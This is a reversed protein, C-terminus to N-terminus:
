TACTQCHTTEGGVTTRAWAELELKGLSCIKIYDATWQVDDDAEGVHLCGVRHLMLYDRSPTRTTNIFYGNPHDNMWTRFGDDDDKFVIFDPEEDVSGTPGQGKRMRMEDKAWWLFGAAHETDSFGDGVLKLLLDNSWIILRGITWSTSEPRPLNLDYVWKAIEKKGAQGTYKNIPLFRAPEVMCLVKTLLAERFGIMGFGHLGEILDTLRDELFTDEPGYLLHEVSEKVRRAGEEPGMENWASNFASMNGPNGARNANAFFKLDDPTAEALGEKSFLHKFRERFEVAMESSAPHATLYESKLENAVQSVESRVDDPSPFRKRLDDVTNITKYVAKAEGRVWQHGCSDCKVERRGDDLQHVRSLEDSHCQPCEVAMWGGRNNNARRYLTPVVLEAGFVGSFQLRDNGRGDALTEGADPRLSREYAIRDISQMSKVSSSDLISWM